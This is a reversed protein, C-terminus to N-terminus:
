VPRPSDPVPPPAVNMRKIQKELKKHMDEIFDRDNSTPSTKDLLNNNRDESTEEDSNINSDSNSPSHPSLMEQEQMVARFEQISENLAWLQSLLSLDLQRLSYMESKLIALKTDLTTTKRSMSSSSSSTLSRQSDFSTLNNQQFIQMHEQSQQKALLQQQLIEIASLANPLPPLGSLSM